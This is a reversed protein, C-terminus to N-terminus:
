NHIIRVNDIKNHMYIDVKKTILNIMINDSYILGNKGIYNVNDFIRVIKDKFNLDLKDSYIKNEMYQISVNKRFITNHNRNNYIANDSKITIPKNDKDLIIAKVKTMELIENENSEILETIESSIIYRNDEDINIQYELNKIVDNNTLQVIKDEPIKLESVTNNKNNIFYLNKFVIISILILLILIIQIIKKM